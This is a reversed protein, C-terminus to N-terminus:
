GKTKSVPASIFSWIIKANVKKVLYFAVKLFHEASEKLQKKNHLYM